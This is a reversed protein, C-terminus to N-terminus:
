LFKLTKIKITKEFVNRLFTILYSAENETDSEAIISICKKLLVGGM